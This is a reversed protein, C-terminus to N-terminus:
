ENSQVYHRQKQDCLGYIKLKQILLKPFWITAVKFSVIKDVIKKEKSINKM